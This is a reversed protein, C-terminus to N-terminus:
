GDSQAYVVQNGIKVPTKPALSAIQHANQETQQAAVVAQAAGPKPTFEQDANATMTSSSQTSQVIDKRKLYEYFYKEREKLHLRKEGNVYGTVAFVDGKRALAPIRKGAATQWFHITTLAAIDERAALDPYNVLDIGLDKSAKTYNYRGTLQIFGRGRYRFGDGPQTNGLKKHGEYKKQLETPGWIEYLHRGKGTEVATQALLMARENPDTIGVSNMARILSGEFDKARKPPKSKKDEETIVPKGAADVKFPEVRVNSQTESDTKRERRPRRRTEPNPAPLSRATETPTRAQRQKREAKQEETEPEAVYRKYAWYGVGAATLAALVYPNLLAFRSAVVLTRVLARATTTLVKGGLRVAGFAIGIAIRGAAVGMRLALRGLLLPIRVLARVAIRIATAAAGLTMGILRSTAFFSGEAVEREENLREIHAVSMAAAVIEPEAYRDSLHQRRKLKSIANKISERPPIYDNLLQSAGLSISVPFPNGLAAATDFTTM